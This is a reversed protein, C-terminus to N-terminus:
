CDGSGVAPLRPLEANAPQATLRRHSMKPRQAWECAGHFSSVDNKKSSSSKKDDDNAHYDLPPKCRPHSRTGRNVVVVANAIATNTLWVLLKDVL